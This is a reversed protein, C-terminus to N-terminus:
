KKHGRGWHIHNWVREHLYYIITSIITSYAMVEYTFSTDGTLIYVLVGNSVIILFRYTITKILSRAHWEHVKHQKTNTETKSNM